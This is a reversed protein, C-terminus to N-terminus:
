NSQDVAEYARQIADIQLAETHVSSSSEVFFQPDRVISIKSERTNRLCPALHRWPPALHRGALNAQLKCVRVASVSPHAGREKVAEARSAWVRLLAPWFRHAFKLVRKRKRACGFPFTSINGKSSQGICVKNLAPWVQAREGMQANTDFELKISVSRM